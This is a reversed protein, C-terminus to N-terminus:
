KGFGQAARLAKTERSEQPARGDLSELVPILLHVGLTGLRKQSSACIDTDPATGAVAPTRETAVDRGAAVL